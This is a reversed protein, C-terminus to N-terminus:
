KSRSGLSSEIRGRLWNRCSRLKVVYLNNDKIKYKMTLNVLEEHKKNMVGERTGFIQFKANNGRLFM